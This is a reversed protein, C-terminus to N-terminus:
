YNILFVQDCNTGYFEDKCICRETHYLQDYNLKISNKTNIKIPQIFKTGIRSCNNQAYYIFQDNRKTNVIWKLKEAKQRWGYPLYCAKVQEKWIFGNSCDCKFSQLNVLG